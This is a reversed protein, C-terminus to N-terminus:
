RKIRPTSLFTCNCPILKNYKLREYSDHIRDIKNTIITMLDRKNNGSIRIRIEKKEYYEIVEAQAYNDILVLLNNNENWNYDPQNLTLLQPAIYNDKNHSIKYCLKFIIMLQLLENHMRQYKSDCWIKGLDQKHFRGSNRIVTNDDLVKYVAETGWEPQLIVTKCLVSDYIM